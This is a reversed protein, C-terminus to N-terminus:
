LQVSRIESNAKDSIHVFWVNRYSISNYGVLMQRFADHSAAFDKTVNAAEADDDDDDDYGDCAV